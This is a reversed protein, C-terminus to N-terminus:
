FSPVLRLTTNKTSSLIKHANHICSYITSAQPGLNIKHHDRIASEIRQLSSDHEEIISSKFAQLNMIQRKNPRASSNCLQCHNDNVRAIYWHSKPIHKMAIKTSILGKKSNIHVEWDCVTDTCRWIRQHQASYALNISKNQSL